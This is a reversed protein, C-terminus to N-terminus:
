FGPMQPSTYGSVSSTEDANKRSWQGYFIAHCKDDPSLGTESKGSRRLFNDKARCKEFEGQNKDLEYNMKKEFESACGSLGALGIAALTATAFARKLSMKM